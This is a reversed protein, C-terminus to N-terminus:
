ASHGAPHRLRGHNVSNLNPAETGWGAQAVGAEMPRGDVVAAKFHANANVYINEAGCLITDDVGWSPPVRIAVKM